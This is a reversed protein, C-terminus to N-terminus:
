LQLALLNLRISRAHMQQRQVIISRVMGNLGGAPQVAMKFDMLLATIIM